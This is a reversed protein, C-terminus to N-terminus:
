YLSARPRLPGGKPGGTELALMEQRLITLAPSAEGLSWLRSTVVLCRPCGTLLHRVLSAVDSGTLEGRMFGELRQPAPHDDEHATNM